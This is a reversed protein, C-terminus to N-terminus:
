NKFSKVPGDGKIKLIINAPFKIISENFDNRSKTNFEKVQDDILYDLELLSDMKESLLKDEKLESNKDYEDLLKDVSINLDSLTDISKNMDESTIDSKESIKNSNKICEELLLKAPKYEKMNDELDKLINLREKALTNIDDIKSTVNVYENEANNIIGYGVISGGILLGAVITVIGIVKNNKKNTEINM